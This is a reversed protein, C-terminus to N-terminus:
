AAADLLLKNAMDRLRAKQVKDGNAGQTVPFTNLVIIRQPVKYKAMRSECYKLADLEEFLMGKAVQVFAVAV